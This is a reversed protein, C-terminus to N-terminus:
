RWRPRPRRGARRDAGRLGGKEDRQCVFFVAPSKRLHFDGSYHWSLPRARDPQVLPTSPVARAQLAPSGMARFQVALSWASRIAATLFALSPDSGAPVAAAASSPWWSSVAAWPASKAALCAPPFSEADSVPIITDGAGINDTLAAVPSFAIGPYLQTEM